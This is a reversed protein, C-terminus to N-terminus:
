GRAKYQAKSPAIKLGQNEQLEPLQGCSHHAFLPEVPGGGSGGGCSRLASGEGERTGEVILVGIAGLVARAHDLATSKSGVSLKNDRCGATSGDLHPLVTHHM